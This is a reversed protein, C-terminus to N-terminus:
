SAGFVIAVHHVVQTSREAVAILDYALTATVAIVGSILLVRLEHASLSLM